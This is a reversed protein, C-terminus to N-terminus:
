TGPNSGQFTVPPMHSCSAAMMAVIGERQKGNGKVGAHIKGDLVSFPYTVCIWICPMQM